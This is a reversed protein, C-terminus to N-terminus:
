VASAPQKAQKLYIAFSPSQKDSQCFAASTSTSTCPLFSNDIQLHSLTWAALVELNISVVRQTSMLCCSFNLLSSFKPRRCSAKENIGLCNIMVIKTWVSSTFLDFSIRTTAWEETTISFRCVQYVKITRMCINLVCHNVQIQWWFCKLLLPM